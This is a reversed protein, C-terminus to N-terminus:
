VYNDKGYFVQLDFTKECSVKLINSKVSVFLDYEINDIIVQAIKQETSFDLNDLLTLETSLKIPYVTSALEIVNVNSPVYRSANTKLQGYNAFEFSKGTGTIKKGRAFCTVGAQMDSPQVTASNTDLEYSHVKMSNIPTGGYM